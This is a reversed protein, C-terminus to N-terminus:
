FWDDVISGQRHWLTKKWITAFSGLRQSVAPIPLAWFIFLAFYLLCQITNQATKAQGNQWCIQLKILPFKRLFIPNKFFLMFNMSQLQKGVMAVINPKQKLNPYVPLIEPNTEKLVRFRETVKSCWGKEPVQIRWVERERLNWIRYKLGEEPELLYM